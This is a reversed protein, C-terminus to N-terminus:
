THHHRHHVPSAVINRHKTVAALATIQETAQCLVDLFPLPPHPSPTLGLNRCTCNANCAYTCCLVVYLRAVIDRSVCTGCAVVQSQQTNKRTRSTDGNKYNGKVRCVCLQYHRQSCSAVRNCAFWTAAFKHGSRACRMVCIRSMRRCAFTKPVCARGLNQGFVFVLNSAM